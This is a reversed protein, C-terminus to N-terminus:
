IAAGLQCSAAFVEAAFNLTAFDMFRFQAFVVFREGLSVWYDAEHKLSIFIFGFIVGTEGIIAM